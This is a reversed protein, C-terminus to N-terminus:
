SDPFIRIGGITTIPALSRAATVVRYGAPHPQFRPNHPSAVAFSTELDVMGDFVALHLTQNKM